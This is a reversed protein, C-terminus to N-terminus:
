KHFRRLLFSLLLLQLFFFYYYGFRLHRAIAPSTCNFVYIYTGIGVRVRLTEFVVIFIEDQIRRSHIFKRIPSSEIKNKGTKRLPCRGGEQTSVERIPAHTYGRAALLSPDRTTTIAAPKLARWEGPMAAGRRCSRCLPPPCLFPFTSAAVPPFQRQWRAAGWSPNEVITTCFFFFFFGTRFTRTGKSRTRTCICVHISRQLCM